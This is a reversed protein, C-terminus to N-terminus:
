LSKTFIYNVNSGGIFKKDLPFFFLVVAKHANKVPKQFKGSKKRHLVPPHVKDRQTIYINNKGKM